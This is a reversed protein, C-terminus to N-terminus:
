EALIKELGPVPLPSFIVRGVPMTSLLVWKTPSGTFVMFSRIPRTSRADVLMTAMTKPHIYAFPSVLKQLRQATDYGTPVDIMPASALLFKLQSIQAELASGVPNLCGVSLDASLLVESGETWSPTKAPVILYHKPDVVKIGLLYNYMAKINLTLSSM